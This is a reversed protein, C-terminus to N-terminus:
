NAEWVSWTYRCRNRLQGSFCPAEPPIELSYLVRFVMPFTVCYASWLNAIRSKFVMNHACEHILTFLAHNAFAGVAYALLPIWYWALSSSVWALTLQMGVIAVIFVFTMPNRGM